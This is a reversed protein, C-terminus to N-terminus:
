SFYASSYFFFFFFNDSSKKDSQGPGGRVFIGPDACSMLRSQITYKRPNILTPYNHMNKDGASKLVFIYFETFFYELFEMLTLSNPYLDPGVFRLRM